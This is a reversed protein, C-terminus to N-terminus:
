GPVQLPDLAPTAPAPTLQRTQETMRNPSSLILQGLAESGEQFENAQDHKQGVYTEIEDDFQDLLDDSSGELVVRAARKLMETDTAPLKGAGLLLGQFKGIMSLQEPGSMLNFTTPYTVSIEDVLAEAPIGNTAVMLAMEAMLREAKGLAAALKSLKTSGDEQDFAKSVGSQAVTGGGQSTGAAGAPKTLGNERDVEDRRQQLNLRLSEDGSKDLTVYEWGEYGGNADKFKPLVYGPGIIIENQATLFDVPGSLPPASMMTDNLILESDRNYYDRQREATTEMRSQGVNRSRFKKRDYIRLVPPRKFPHPVPQGVLNGEKDFITQDEPNWWRFVIKSECDPTEWFEQVLCEVYQDQEDKAWWLLNQPLIFSSRVADLGHRRQDALTQIQVGAPACPHQFVIDLQGLVILLPAITDVMFEDISTRGCDVDEWWDMVQQPGKRTIEKRYLKSLYKDVVEAVFTPVPTRALRTDYTSLAAAELMMAGTQGVGTGTGLVQQAQLQPKTERSHRFLNRTPANGPQSYDATKYRHGGELSDCLWTWTSHNEDWEPHRRKILRLATQQDLIPM